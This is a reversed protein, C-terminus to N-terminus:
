RFFYSCAYERSLKKECTNDCGKMGRGATKTGTLIQYRFPTVAGDPMGPYLELDHCIRLAFDAPKKMRRADSGCFIRHLCPVVPPDYGAFMGKKFAYYRKGTSHGILFLGRMRTAM